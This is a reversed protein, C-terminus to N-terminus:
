EVEFCKQLEKMGKSTYEQIAKQRAEETDNPELYKVIRAPNGTIVAYPPVDQDIITKCGVVCGKGLTVGPLIVADFGVWVNDEIVIPKAFAQLDLYRNKTHAAKILLAKREQVESASPLWSDTIVAGWGFMSHDGITISRNCIINTANLIAYKGVTVKGEEGVIYNGFAYNGSAFGMVFGEEKESHFGAFSFSSEPYAYPHLKVNAPLSGPYWDRYIFQQGGIIEVNENM